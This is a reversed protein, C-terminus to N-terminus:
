VVFPHVFKTLDRRRLADGISRPDPTAELYKVAVDDTFEAQRSYRISLADDQAQQPIRFLERSRLRAAFSAYAAKVARM